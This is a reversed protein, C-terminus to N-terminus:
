AKDSKFSKNCAVCYLESLDDIPEEGNENDNDDDNPSAERFDNKVSNELDDLQKEFEQFSM